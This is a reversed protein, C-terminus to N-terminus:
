IPLGLLPGVVLTVAWGVVVTVAIWQLIQTRVGPSWMRAVYVICALAVLAESCWIVRPSIGLISGITQEDNIATGRLTGYGVIAIRSAASAVLSSWALKWTANQSSRAGLVSITMLLLTFVPGAGVALLQPWGSVVGSRLEDSSYVLAGVGFHAGEHGLISLWFLVLLLLIPPVAPVGTGASEITATIPEHRPELPM